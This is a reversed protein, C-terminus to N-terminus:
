LCFVDGAWKKRERRTKGKSLANESEEDLQLFALQFTGWLYEGLNMMHVCSTGLVVRTHFFCLACLLTKPRRWCVVCNKRWSLLVPAQKRGLAHHTQPLNDHWPVCDGKHQSDKLLTHEPATEQQRLLHFCWGAFMSQHCRLVGVSVPGYELLICMWQMIPACSVCGCWGHVHTLKMVMCYVGKCQPHALTSAVRDAEEASSMPWAPPQLAVSLVSGALDLQAFCMCRHVFCWFERNAFIQISRLLATHPPYPRGAATEAENGCMGPMHNSTALRWCIM